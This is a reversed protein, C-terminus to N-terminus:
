MYIFKCRIITYCDTTKGKIKPTTKKIEFWNDLDTAKAKKIKGYSDKIELATYIGQLMQKWEAATAMTGETVGAEKLSEIIKADLSIDTRM